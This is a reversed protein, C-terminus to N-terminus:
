PSEVKSKNLPSVSYTNIYPATFCLIHQHLTCHFLTHTSTLHLTHTSTLHPSVSHTNIYPATFCLIQLYLTRRFLTHTSTLRLHSLILQFRNKTYPLM